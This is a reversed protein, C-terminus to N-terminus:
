SNNNHHNFHHLIIGDITNFIEPSIIQRVERNVKVDELNNEFSLAKAQSEKIGALLARIGNSISPLTSGDVLFAIFKECECVQQISQLEQLYADLEETKKKLYGPELSRVLKAKPLQPLSKGRPLLLKEKELEEQLEKFHSYRRQIEWFMSSAGSELSSVRVVYFAHASEDGGRSIECSTVNIRFRIFAKKEEIFTPLNSLRPSSPAIANTTVKLNGQNKQDSVSNSRDMLRSM